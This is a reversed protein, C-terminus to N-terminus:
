IRGVRISVASLTSPWFHWGQHQGDFVVALLTPQCYHGDSNATLTLGHTEPKIHWTPHYLSTMWEIQVCDYWQLLLRIVHVEDSESPRGKIKKKWWNWVHVKLVSKSCALYEERWGVLLTLCWPCIWLLLGVASVGVLSLFSLEAVVSPSCSTSHCSFDQWSNCLQDFFVNWFTM